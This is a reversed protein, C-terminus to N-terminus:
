YVGIYHLMEQAPYKNHTRHKADNTRVEHVSNRSLKQVAVTRIEM